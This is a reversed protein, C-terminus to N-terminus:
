LDVNIMLFDFNLLSEANSGGFIVLQNGIIVSSHEARSPPSINNTEPHIWNLTQLDLIVIDNLYLENEFDNKGGHIFIMNCKLSFDMSACIRPSPPKGYTPPIEFFAPKTGVSLQFFLNTPVKTENIGGFFFIGELKLLPLTKRNSAPKNYISLSPSTLQEKELAICCSHFGLPPPYRGNFDLLDWRDKNLDYIWCDNLFNNNPNIGGYIFIHSGVILSVHNKRPSPFLIRSEESENLKNNEIDNEDSNYETLKKKREKKPNIKINKVRKNITSFTVKREEKDFLKNKKNISNIGWIDDINKNYIKKSFTIQEQNKREKKLKKVTLSQRNFKNEKILNNNLNLHRLNIRSENKSKTKNSYQEEQLNKHNLKEKNGNLEWENKELDFIWLFDKKYKDKGWGDYEGGFIYLKNNLFHMTHGYRPMPGKIDIDIDYDNNNYNIEPIDFLKEWVIKKIDYKYKCIWLDGFIKGGLGGYLYIFDNLEDYSISTFTRLIPHHRVKLYCIDLRCPEENQEYRIIKNPMDGCSEKMKNNLFEKMNLLLFEREFVSKKKIKTQKINQAEEPQHLHKKLIKINPMRNNKINFKCIDDYEKQFKQFQLDLRIKEVTNSMQSNIKLIKKSKFPDRYDRKQVNRVKINYKKRLKKEIEHFEDYTLKKDIDNDKYFKHRVEKAYVREEKKANGDFFITNAIEDDELTYHRENGNNNYITNNNKLTLNGITKMGIGMSTKMYLDNISSMKFNETNTEYLENDYLPTKAELGFFKKKKYFNNETENSSFESNERKPSPKNKLVYETYNYQTLNTANTMMMTVYPNFTNLYKNRYDNKHIFSNKNRLRFYFFNNNKSARQIQHNLPNNQSKPRKFDKYYTLWTQYKKQWNNEKIQRIEKIRKKDKESIM